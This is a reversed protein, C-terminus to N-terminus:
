GLIFDFLQHRVTYFTKLNLVDTNHELSAIGEPLRATIDAPIQSVRLDHDCRQSQHCYSAKPRQRQNESAPAVPGRDPLQLSSDFLDTLV